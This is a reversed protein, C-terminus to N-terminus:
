LYYYIGASLSLNRSFDAGANFRFHESMEWNLRIVGNFISESILGSKINDNFTNGNEPNVREISFDHSEYLLNLGPGASLTINRDKYSALLNLTFYVTQFKNERTEDLYGTEPYLNDEINDTKGFAYLLRPELNIGWHPDFKYQVLFGLGFWPSIAESEIDLDTTDLNTNIVQYHKQSLGLTLLGDVYWDSGPKSILAMGASLGIGNFRDHYNVFTNLTDIEGDTLTATGYDEGMWVSHKSMSTLKLDIDFFSYNLGFFYKGSSSSEPKEVAQAAVAITLTMGMLFAILRKM